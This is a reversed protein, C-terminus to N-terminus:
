ALFFQEIKQWGEALWLVLEYIAFDGHSEASVQDQLGISAPNLM